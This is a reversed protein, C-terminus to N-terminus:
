KKAEEKSSDEKAKAPFISDVPKDGYEVIITNIQEIDTSIVNGRMIMRKVVANKKNSSKRMVRTKVTGNISPDIPFGSKDSGGTIKLKYGPLELISGEIIDGVKKNLFYAAADEKVEVQMTRGSKPDSCVVKM